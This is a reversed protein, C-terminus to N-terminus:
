RQQLLYSDVYIVYDCDSDSSPKRIMLNLGYNLFYDVLSSLDAEVTEDHDYGYEKLSRAGRWHCVTIRAM